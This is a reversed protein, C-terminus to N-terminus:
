EIYNSSPIPLLSQINKERCMGDKKINYFSRNPTVDTEIMM